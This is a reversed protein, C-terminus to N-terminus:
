PTRKNLKLKVFFWLRDFTAHALQRLRIAGGDHLPRTAANGISSHGFFRLAQPRRGDERIHRPPHYTSYCGDNFFERAHQEARDDEGNRRVVAQEFWIVQVTPSCLRLRENRQRLSVDRLMPHSPGPSARVCRCAGSSPAAFRRRTTLPAFFNMVYAVMMPVKHRHGDGVAVLFADRGEDELFPHLNRGEFFLCAPIARTPSPSRRRQLNGVYCSCRSPSSPM